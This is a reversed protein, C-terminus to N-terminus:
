CLKGPKTVSAFNKPPDKAAMINTNHQPVNEPENASRERDLGRGVKAIPPKIESCSLSKKEM